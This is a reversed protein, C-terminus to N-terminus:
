ICIATMVVPKRSTRHILTRLSDKQLKSYLKYEGVDVEKCIIQVYVAETDSFIVPTTSSECQDVM